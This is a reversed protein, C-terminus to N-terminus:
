QLKKVRLPPSPLSAPIRPKLAEAENFGTLPSPQTSEALRIRPKLAEAENFCHKCIM